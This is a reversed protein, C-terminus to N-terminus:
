LRPDSWSGTQCVLDSLNNLRVFKCLAATEFVRAIGMRAAVRQTPPRSLDHGSCVLLNVALLVAAGAKGGVAACLSRRVEYAHHFAGCAASGAVAALVGVPDGGLLVPVLSLLGLRAAGQLMYLLVVAAAALQVGLRQAGGGGGGGIRAALPQRCGRSLVLALTLMSCCMAALPVAPLARAVRGPNVQVGYEFDDDVAATWLGLAQLLALPLSRGLTEWSAASHAAGLAARYRTTAAAHREASVPPMGHELELYRMARWLDLLRRAPGLM